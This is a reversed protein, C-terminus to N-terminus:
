FGDGGDCPNSNQNCTGISKGFPIICRYGCPCDTNRVCGRILRYFKQTGLLPDAVINQGSVNVPPILVPTWVVPSAFDTTSFLSFPATNSPWLLVVNAGSSIITLHPGIFSPAPFEYAGIDVLGDMIRPNGDLDVVGVAYAANGANICPSNSQLRLNGSVQDVFLPANTINGVGNTPLPTTCSYNLTGSSDYNTGSTSTNFYVICNNLTSLYAGGGLGRQTTLDHVDFTRNAVLTCNNLISTATGGGYGRHGDHYGASNRILLCNNLTSSNAGGGSLFASNGSLSCNSLTSGDAAGGAGDTASNATLTCENLTAGSIAGGSGASNGSFVCNSIWAIRSGCYVGGGVDAAGNTLTFGVLGTGATVYVCRNSGGGDIMTFQPGNLSRLTVARDVAIRNPGNVSRGSTAYIGNTVVIEDGAIAADVAVQINRAATAWSTFPLAPSLSNPDVYRVTALASGASALLLAAAFLRAVSTRSIPLNNM